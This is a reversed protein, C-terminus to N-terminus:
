ANEAEWRAKAIAKEPYAGVFVAKWGVRALLAAIRRERVPRSTGETDNVEMAKQVSAPHYATTGVKVMGAQTLLIERKKITAQSIPNDGDVLDAPAGQGRLARRPIGAAECVFGLCCQYGDELLGSDTVVGAALLEGTLWKKRNIVVRRLRKAKKVMM